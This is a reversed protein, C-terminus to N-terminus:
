FNASFLLTHDQRLESQGKPQSWRIIELDLRVTSVKINNQAGELGSHNMADLSSGIKAKRDM